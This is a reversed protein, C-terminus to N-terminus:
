RFLPFAMGATRTRVIPVDVASHSGSRRIISFGECEIMSYDRNEFLIELRAQCHDMVVLWIKSINRAPIEVL